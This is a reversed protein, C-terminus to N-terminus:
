PQPTRRGELKVGSDDVSAPCTPLFVLFSSAPVRADFHSSSALALQQSGQSLFFFPFLPTEVALRASAPFFPPRLSALPPRTVHRATLTSIPPVRRRGSPPRTSTSGHSSPILPYFASRSSGRLVAGALMM